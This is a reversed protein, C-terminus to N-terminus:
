RKDIKNGNIFVVRLSTESRRVAVARVVARVTAERGGEQQRGAAERGDGPQRGAAERVGGLRRGQQWNGWFDFHKKLRGGKCNGEQRSGAM